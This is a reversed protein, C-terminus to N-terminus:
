ALRAFEEHFRKAADCYASYAEERTTYSGLYIMKKHVQIRAIWRRSRKCWTAGKMGSTNNKQRGVNCRNQQGTADRLNCFRNDNHTGNIHDITNKPWQGTFILWAIRHGKYIRGKLCVCVYGRKSTSGAIKGGRNKWRLLGTEPDYDLVSRVYEATLDNRPRNSYPITNDAM